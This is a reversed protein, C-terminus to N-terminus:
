IKRKLVAMAAGPNKEFFQFSIGIIACQRRLQEPVDVNLNIETEREFQDALQQNRSDSYSTVTLITNYGAPTLIRDIQQSVMLLYPEEASKFIAYKITNGFGLHIDTLPERCGKVATELSNDFRGVRVLTKPEKSLAEGFTYAM